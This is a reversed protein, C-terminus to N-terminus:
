RPVHEIEFAMSKCSVAAGVSEPSMVADHGTVNLAFGVGSAGEACVGRTTLYATTGYPAVGHAEIVRLDERRYEGLAHDDDRGVARLPSRGSLRARQPTRAYASAHPQSAPSTTDSPPPEGAPPKIAISM